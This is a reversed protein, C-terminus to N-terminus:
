WSKVRRQCKPGAGCAGGRRRAKHAGLGAGSGTQAAIVIIIYLFLAFRASSNV